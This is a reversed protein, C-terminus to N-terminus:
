SQEDAKFLLPDSDTWGLLSALRRAEVDMVDPSKGARRRVAARYTMARALAIDSADTIEANRVGLTFWREALALHGHYAFEEGVREISSSRVVYPDARLAARLSRAAEEARAADGRALLVEVLVSIADTAEADDSAAARQALAVAQDHEAVASLYGAAVALLTSRAVRELEVDPDDVWSLLTAARTRGWQADSMGKPRRQLELDDLDDDTIVRPM